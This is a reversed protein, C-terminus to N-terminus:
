PSVTRRRQPKTRGITVRLRAQGLVVEDGDRLLLGRAGRPVEITRGARV